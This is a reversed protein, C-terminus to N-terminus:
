KEREANEKRTMEDRALRMKWAITDTYKKQFALDVIVAPATLYMLLFENIKYRM